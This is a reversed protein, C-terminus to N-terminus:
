RVFEARAVEHPVVQPTVAIAHDRHVRALVLDEPQRTVLAQGVYGDGDVDDIHETRRVRQWTNRCLGDLDMRPRQPALEAHNILLSGPDCFRAPEGDHHVAADLDLVRPEDAPHVPQTEIRLPDRGDAAAKLSTPRPKLGPM